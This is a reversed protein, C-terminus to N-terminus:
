LRRMYGHYGTIQLHLLEHFVHGLCKICVVDIDLIYLLVESPFACLLWAFM